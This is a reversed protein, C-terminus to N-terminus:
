TGPGREGLFQDLVWDAIGAVDDPDFCPVAVSIALDTAVAVLNPDAVCLLEDSRARRAVELKPWEGTRYGEALILDVDHFHREVIEDPSPRGDIRERLAFEHPGSIAVQSAGADFLRATDKGERDMQFGHADHKLVAVQVGREMLVPILRELLTTKGSGSSGVVALRPVWARRTQM